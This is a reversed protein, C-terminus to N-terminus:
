VCIHVMFSNFFLPSVKAVIIITFLTNKVNAMSIFSILLSYQLQDSSQVSHPLM